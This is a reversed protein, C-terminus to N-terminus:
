LGVESLSTREDILLRLARDFAAWPAAALAGGVSVPTVGANALDAVCTQPRDALGMTEGPM